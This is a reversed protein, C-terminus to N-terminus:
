VACCSLIRARYQYLGQRVSFPIRGSRGIDSALVVVAIALMKSVVFVFNPTSTVDAIEAIGVTRERWLLEAGLLVALIAAPVATTASLGEAIPGTVPLIPSGGQQGFLEVYFVCAFAELLLVILFSWSRVVARIEFRTRMVLPILSGAGGAQVAVHKRAPLSEITRTATARVRGPGSVGERRRYLLTAAALLTGGIQIWLVCNWLIPGQLSLLVTNSELKSWQKTLDIFAALGFPDALAWQGGTAFADRVLAIPLSLLLAFLGAYVSLMKRTVTAIGFFLTGAFFLSPMALSRFDRAYADPRFPGIQNPLIKWMWYTREAIMMGVASGSFALCVM